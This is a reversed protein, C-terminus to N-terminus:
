LAKRLRAIEPDEAVLQPVVRDILALQEEDLYFSTPLANAMMKLTPDQINRFSIEITYPKELISLSDTSKALDLAARNVVTARERIEKWRKASLIDMSLVTTYSLVSFLGPASASEAATDAAVVGANVNLIILRRLPQDRDNLKKNIIGNTNFEDIIAQLGQNDVLGGDALHVFRNDKDNYFERMRVYLGREVYKRENLKAMTYDIDDQLDEADGHNLLTLPSLLGPFASSAACAHGIPYRSLDSRLYGFAEPTFTFRNGLALNTTNIWLTPRSPLDGFTKRDFVESDYLSAALHIRDFRDSILRLGNWPPVFIEKFLAGQIDREIFRQRFLDPNDRFLVWGAAAFCGGSIGSVYDIEDALTSDVTTGDSDIYTYPIKRLAELVAWSVATARTGGGSFSAFMLTQEDHPAAVGSSPPVASAPGSLEVNYPPEYSRFALWFVLGVSAVVALTAILRRV